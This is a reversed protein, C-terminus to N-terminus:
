GYYTLSLIKTIRDIEKQISKKEEHLIATYAISLLTNLIGEKKASIFAASSFTLKLGIFNKM